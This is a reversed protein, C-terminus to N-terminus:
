LLFSSVDCIKENSNFFQSQIIILPTENTLALREGVVVLFRFWGESEISKVVKRFLTRATQDLLPTMMMKFHFQLEHCARTIRNKNYTHVQFRNVQHSRPDNNLSPHNSFSECVCTLIEKWVNYPTFQQQNLGTEM